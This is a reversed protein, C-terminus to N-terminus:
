PAPALETANVRVKVQRGLLHLLIVVREEDTRSGFVGVLDAMPGATVQVAAGAQFDPASLKIFGNAEERQRIAEVIENSVTAPQTGMRVLDVVGRASSAARLSQTAADMRFFLYRPFLPYAALDVKRAHRRERQYRPLYVEFGRDWLNTRAWLEM